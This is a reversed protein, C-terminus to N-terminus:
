TPGIRPFRMPGIVPFEAHPDLDVFPNTIRLASQPSVASFYRLWAWFIAPSAVSLGNPVTVSGLMLLAQIMNVQVSGSKLNKPIGKPFTKKDLRVQLSKTHM